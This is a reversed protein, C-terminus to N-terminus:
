QFKYRIMVIGSGGNIAGPPVGGGGGGMNTQGAIEASPDGPYASGGGGIGAQPQGNPTDAGGGGGGAFYRTPTVPGTQGYSPATPGIFSNSIYSGIGGQGPSSAAGNGGVAGAGGGGGQANISPPSSGGNNGQPPSTPPSNGNGITRGAGGSGGPNAAVPAPYGSSYGGGASTITAFTSNGGNAGTSGGAGGGGVCISYSQVGLGIGTPNTLPSTEPAPLAHQNSMRFGGAGGGGGYSSSTGGGGAVVLYDGVNPNGSPGPAVASVTFTGPSKFIATKFNGDTVIANCSGSVSATVFLPSGTISNSTEQVNIWGETADVFVFTASQGDTNLVANESSGGIKDSGNAAITFNGTSFTRTYDAIAVIAGASGAPLNMTFGGSSTNIFYGEGSTPTFTATKISGTQWDVSGERGFGTQSAGVALQITDGSAGLTITTGSQSILNGGDAAQLNDGGSRVGNAAAGITVTSGCKNIINSDDSVKNINDVKIKSTM